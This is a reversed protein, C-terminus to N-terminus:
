EDIEKRDIMIRRDIANRLRGEYFFQDRGKYCLDKVQRMAEGLRIKDHKYQVLVYRVKDTFGDRM